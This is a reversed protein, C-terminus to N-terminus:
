RRRPIPELQPQTGGLEALRKSSVRAIYQDLLQRIMRQYPMNHKAAEAKFFEVSKKRLKITIKVSEDHFALEDPFPLFGSTIKIEGLPDETYKRKRRM